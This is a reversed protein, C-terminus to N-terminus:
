HAGYLKLPFCQGSDMTHLNPICDVMLCSFEATAGIGTICIALNAESGTPFVRPIQLVMENIRRDFYLYQKNFPRYSSIVIAEERFSLSEREEPREEAWSDLQDENCGVYINKLKGKM